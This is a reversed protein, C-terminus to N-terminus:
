NFKIKQYAVLNSSSNIKLLMDVKHNDSNIFDFALRTPGSYNKKESTATLTVQAFSSQFSIVLFLMLLGKSFQLKNKM